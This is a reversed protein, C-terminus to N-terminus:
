AREARSIGGLFVKAATLLFLWVKEGKSVTPRGHLVDYDISEIKDLIKLGGLNFLAVDVKVRGDLTSVLELGEQLLERARNVEFEMLRVFNENYARNELEDRSYNFREMDERPVYVRGMREDRDVDQWFNTLQLGTCTKDSLEIRRDGGYGFINLFIRGVPNASHECYYLLDEYTEYSSNKQDLRNATIIKKFPKLTLGNAEITDKLAVLITNGTFDGKEVGELEREWQDLAELNGGELEDGLDDTYRSFAYLAHIYKRKDQPLLRSVVTFNEYNDTNIKRCKEYAREVSVSNAYLDPTLKSLEVM